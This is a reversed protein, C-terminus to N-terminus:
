VPFVDKAKLTFRFIAGHPVNDVAYIKGGHAKLILECLNLGVGLRRSSDSYDKKGTYFLEFIRRKDEDPIGEGNDSVSVTVTDGEREADITVLSGPPTYKVANNLLNILVQTILNSDMEAFLDESVNRIMVTHEPHPMIHRLSEAIVDYVNEVTIDLCGNNELKTMYLINNMQANLWMSDEMMDHYIKKRDEESLQKENQELNLANGYISTLPTRLDHSISRLLGARLRENEEEIEAMKRRTTIQENELAMTFESLISILISNEFETFREHRMDIGIVGFPDTESGISYYRCLYNPFHSTFAGSHHRNEASWEVADIEKEYAPRDVTDNNLSYIKPNRFSGIEYFLINRNLLEVLQMCTIRIIDKRNDAQELQNSTDLLIKAQYANEASQRAIGKMRITISGTLIAALVTVFYTMMYDANYVLLTFRPDIFLYNFLLIYLVAAIIGYIRHSTVLSTVLVAFIYITIINANSFRSQDFWASLMTAITMIVIVLIIDRIKWTFSNEQVHLAPYESARTDPIIHIDVNPLYESLQVAAPKRVPFFASTISYGLFLDTAHILRAYEAITLLIDNSEFVYIEFGKEKALAINEQLVPQESVEKKSTGVYIAIASKSNGAAMKSAAQIVRKNSPSPSLCLLVVCEKEINSLTEEM